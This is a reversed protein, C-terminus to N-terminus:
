QKHTRQWMTYNFLYTEMYKKITKIDHYFKITDENDDTDHILEASANLLVMAKSYADKNIKPIAEVGIEAFDKILEETTLSKRFEEPDIKFHGM